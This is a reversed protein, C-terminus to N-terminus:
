TKCFQFWLRVEVSRCLPADGNLIYIKVNLGLPEVREEPEAAPTGGAQAAQMENLKEVSIGGKAADWPSVMAPPSEKAGRGRGRGEWPNAKVTTPSNGRGRGRGSAKGRGLGGQIDHGHPVFPPPPKSVDIDHLLSPVHPAPPPKPFNSSTNRRFHQPPPKPTSIGTSFAPMNEQGPPPPEDEYMSSDEPMVGPPGSDYQGQGMVGPPGSDYEQYQGSYSAPDQSQDYSGWGSGWGGGQQWGGTHDGWAGQHGWQPHPPPWQQHPPPWPGSWWAPKEEGVVKSLNEFAKQWASPDPPGQQQYGPWQYGHSTAWQQWQQWQTADMNQSIHQFWSQQSQGWGHQTESTAVSTATQSVVSPQSAAMYSQSSSPQSLMPPVPPAPVPYSVPAGSISSLAGSSPPQPPQPQASITPITSIIEPASSTADGPTISSDETDIDMMNSSEPEPEPEPPPPPKEEAPPMPATVMEEEARNEEIQVQEHAPPWESVMAVAGQGLVPIKLPEPEGSSQNSSPSEGGTKKAKVKALLAAATSKTAQDQPINMKSFKSLNKLVQPQKKVTQDDKGAQQEAVQPEIVIPQQTTPEASASQAPTHVAGPQIEKPQPQPVSEQASGAATLSPATNVPVVPQESNGLTTGLNSQATDTAESVPVSQELETPESKKRIKALLAAATNAVREEELRKIAEEHQKIAAQLRDFKDSSSDALPPRPNATSVSPQVTVAVAQVSTTEASAVSTVPTTSSPASLSPTTTAPQVVAVPKLGKLKESPGPVQMLNHRAMKLLGKARFSLAQLHPNKVDTDRMLSVEGKQDCRIKENLVCKVKELFKEIDKNSAANPNTPGKKAMLAQKFALTLANSKKIASKASKTKALLDAASDAVEEGEKEKKDDEAIVEPEATSALIEANVAEVPTTPVAGSSGYENEDGTIEITATPIDVELLQASGKDSNEGSEKNESPLKGSSDVKTLPKPKGTFGSRRHHRAQALAWLFSNQPEKNFQFRDLEPWSNDLFELANPEQELFYKM